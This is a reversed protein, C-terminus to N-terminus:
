VVQKPTEQSAKADGREASKGEQMEKELDKQSDAKTVILPSFNKLKQSVETLTNDTLTATTQAKAKADATTTTEMVVADVTTVVEVPTPLEESERSDVGTLVSNMDVDMVVVAPVSAAMVKVAAHEQHQRQREHLSAVALEAETVLDQERLVKKLAQREVKAAHKQAKLELKSARKEAKLLVKAARKEKRRQQKAELRQLREEISETGSRIVLKEIVVPRGVARLDVLFLNRSGIPQHRSM